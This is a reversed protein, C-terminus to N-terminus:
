LHKPLRHRSHCRLGLSFAGRRDCLAIRSGSRRRMGSASSEIREIAGSAIGARRSRERPNQLLVPLHDRPRSKPTCPDLAAVSWYHCGVKVESENRYLDLRSLVAM